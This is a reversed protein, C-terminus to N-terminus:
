KEPSNTNMVFSLLSVWHDVQRKLATYETSDKKLRKDLNSYFRIVKVPNEEDNLIIKMEITAVRRHITKRAKSVKKDIFQEVSQGLAEIREMTGEAESVSTQQRIGNEYIEFALLQDYRYDSLIYPMKLFAKKVRTGDVLPAPGWFHLRKNKEDLVLQSLLDYSVLAHSEVINSNAPKYTKLHELQKAKLKEEARTSLFLFLAAFGFFVAFFIFGPLFADRKIFYFLAFIGVIPALCGLRVYWNSQTSSM